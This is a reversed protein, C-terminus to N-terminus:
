FSMWAQMWGNTKAKTKLLKLTFSLRTVEPDCGDYLPTNSDLVLQELKAEERFAASDTNTEKRLLDRVHPDRM